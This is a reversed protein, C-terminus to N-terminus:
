KLFIILCTGKKQSEETKQETSETSTTDKPADTTPTYKGERIKGLIFKYYPNMYNQFDLFAFQPNGSQKTKLVIEM